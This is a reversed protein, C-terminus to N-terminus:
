TLLPDSVASSPKTICCGIGARLQTHKTHCKVKDQCTDRVFGKNRALQSM